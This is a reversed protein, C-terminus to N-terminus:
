RIKPLKQTLRNAQCSNNQQFLRFSNMTLFLLRELFNKSFMTRLTMPSKQPFEAPTMWCAIAGFNTKSPPVPCIMQLVLIM